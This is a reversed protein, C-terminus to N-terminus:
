PKTVIPEWAAARDPAIAAKTGTMNGTSSRPLSFQLGIRNNFNPSDLKQQM